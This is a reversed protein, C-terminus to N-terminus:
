KEWGRVVAYAFRKYKELISTPIFLLCYVNPKNTFSRLIATAESDLLDCPFASGHSRGGGVKM